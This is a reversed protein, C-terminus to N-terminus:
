KHSKSTLGANLKAQAKRSIGHNTHDSLRQKLTKVASLTGAITRKIQYHQRQSAKNITPM